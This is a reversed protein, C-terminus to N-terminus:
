AKIENVFKRIPAMDTYMGEGDNVILTPVNVIDFKRAFEPDDDAYVLDYEISREDLMAKVM